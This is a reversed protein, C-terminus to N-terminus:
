FTYQLATTVGNFTDGRETVRAYGVRAGLAKTVNVKVGAEVRNSSLTAKGSDFAQKHGAGIFGTVGSTLPTSVEGELTYYQTNAKLVSGKDVQNKRGYAARGALDIKGITLGNTYGVEFGLTKDDVGLRYRNGVVAGDFTGYKTALALGVSAEQQDGTKGARTLYDYSTFGVVQASAATSAAVVALALLIKKM